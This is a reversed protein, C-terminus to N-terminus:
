RVKRGGARIKSQFSLTERVVIPSLLMLATLNPLCMLANCIDSLLFVAETRQGAGWYVALAFLGRYLTMGRGRSLYEFAKEGQYEWGLITSFAFLTVAVSVFVGGLPGLVTRFALITLEAGEAGSDLVGSCCIALGTVTCILMTDVVVGTMSIYGQRAPSDTSACASAIAASGMGAENSFVGRAVGCRITQFLTIVATGAAGGAAAQPCVASHLITAVAEPVAAANGAIVALCAAMYFGGMAPVLATSVAGLSRVGGAMVVLVLATVALACAGQPVGFSARLAGAISNSQAMGGIGFSACVAFLAFAAGMVAGLPGLAQRMVYMPGGCLEGQANKQRFRVALLCEAYKLAMGTLATLEMWVLAGPGGATLATAVGVINGTGITAALATMLSAFPSLTGPKAAKRADRGLACTLAYGLNRWPLFRLRILFFVGTGLVLLLTGPGWFFVDLRALIEELTM